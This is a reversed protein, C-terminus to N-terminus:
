RKFVPNMCDPKKVYYPKEALKDQVIRLVEGFRLSSLSYKFSFISIIDEM